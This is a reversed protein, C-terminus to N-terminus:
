QLHSHEGLNNSDPNHCGTLEISLKPPRMSNGFHTRAPSNATLFAVIEEARGKTYTEACSKSTKWIAIGDYFDHLYHHGDRCIIYNEPM